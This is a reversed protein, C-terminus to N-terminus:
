LDSKAIIEMVLPRLQCIGKKNILENMAGKLKKNGIQDYNYLDQVMRIPCSVGEVGLPCDECQLEMITGDTNNSFYAM